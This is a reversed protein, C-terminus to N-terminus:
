QVHHVPVSVEAKLVHKMRSKVMKWPTVYTVALPGVDEHGSLVVQNAETGGLLLGKLSGFEGMVAAGSDGRRAFREFIDESAVAFEKSATVQDRFKVGAKVGLVKGETYETTRGYKFVRDHVSLDNETVIYYNGDVDTPVMTLDKKAQRHHRTKIRNRPSTANRMKILAWDMVSQEFVEFQCAWINGILLEGNAIANSLLEIEKQSEDIIYKSQPVKAHPGSSYKEIAETHAQLTDTVDPYSPSQIPTGPGPPSATVPNELGHAVTVCFEGDQGEIELMVGLSFSSNGKLVGISDGLELIKANNSRSASDAEEVYCGKYFYYSKITPLELENMRDELGKAIDSDMNEMIVAVVPQASNAEIGVHVLLHCWFGTKGLIRDLLPVVEESYELEANSDYVSFYKYPRSTTFHDGLDVLTSSGDASEQVIELQVHSSTHVTNPIEPDANSSTSISGISRDNDVRGESKTRKHTPPSSNPSSLPRKTPTTIQPITRPAIPTSPSSRTARALRAPPTQPPPTTLFLGALLVSPSTSRPSPDLEGDLQLSLAPPPTQRPPPTTLLVDSLFQPSGPRPTTNIQAM